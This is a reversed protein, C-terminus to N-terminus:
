LSMCLCLSEKQLSRGIKSVTDLQILLRIVIWNFARESRRVSYSCHYIRCTGLGVSVFTIVDTTKKDKTQGVKLQM